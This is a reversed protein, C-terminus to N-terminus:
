SGLVCTQSHTHMHVRKYPRQFVLGLVGEQWVHDQILDRHGVCCESFCVHLSLAVPSPSSAPWPTERM